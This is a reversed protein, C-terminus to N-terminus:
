VPKVVQMAAMVGRYNAEEFISFGSADAHAFHLQPHKGNALQLRASHALFGVLPRAMAHGWRFIDLQEVNDRLTPHAQALDQLITRAWNPRSTNLLQQRAVAPTLHTLAYYYTLVSPAPSARLDQHTAVVYGLALSHYLVNDWALEAGIDAQPLQNVTLNAVLWPAYTTQKASAVWNGVPNVWVHPLTMAPAAFIVQRAQWRTTQQDIPDFVDVTVGMKNTEIRHVLANTQIQTRVREAMRQVLWANGEPWTLVAESDAHWGQGDRAAFYHLGAWASVLRYDTGYDDRCAYNVYWHLPESTLQHQLLYDRMSVSDLVLLDADQSSLAMPLAFARKGDQGLRTQFQQIHQFFRQYQAQDDATVGVQPLLGEQWIGNKFLREQPAFCLYREDYHPNAAYPEGQLVGLDALLERVFVAEKGPLPLYHAGWPYASVSNRGGRANGGASDELEFLQFDTVGSRALQWAASLGAVGGGVIAIDVKRTRTAPPFDYGRLKHGLAM